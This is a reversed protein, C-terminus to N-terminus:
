TLSAPCFFPCPLVQSYDASIFVYGHDAIFLDKINVTVASGEM